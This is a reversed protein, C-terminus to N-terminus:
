VLSAIFQARQFIAEELTDFTGVHHKHQKGNRNEPFRVSAEYKGNRERKSVGRYGTNSVRREEM